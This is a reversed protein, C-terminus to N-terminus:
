GPSSGHDIMDGEHALLGEALALCEELPPPPASEPTIDGPNLGLVTGIIHLVKSAGSGMVKCFRGLWSDDANGQYWKYFLNLVLIIVLVKVANRKTYPSPGPPSGGGDNDDREERLLYLPPDKLSGAMLPLLPRPLSPQDAVPEPMSVPPATTLSGTDTNVDIDVSSRGDHAPALGPPLKAGCLLDTAKGLLGPRPQGVPVVEDHSRHAPAAVRKIETDFAQLQRLFMDRERADGWGLANRKSFRKVRTPVDELLHLHPVIAERYGRNEHLFAVIERLQNTIERCELREGKMKKGDTVKAQLEGVVSGYHAPEDNSQVLRRCLAIGRQIVEPTSKGGGAVAPVSCLLAISIIYTHYISAM